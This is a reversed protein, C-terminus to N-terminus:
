HCRKKASTAHDPIRGAGDDQNTNNPLFFPPYTEDFPLSEPVFLSCPFGKTMQFVGSIFESCPVSSLGFNDRRELLPLAFPGLSEREATGEITTTM